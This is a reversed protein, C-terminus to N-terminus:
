LYFLIRQINIGKNTPKTIEHGISTDPLPPSRFLPLVVNRLTFCTETSKREM